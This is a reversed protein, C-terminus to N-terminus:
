TLFPCLLHIVTPYFGEPYQDCDNHEACPYRLGLGIRALTVVPFFVFPIVLLIDPIMTLIDPVTLFIDAVGLVVAPVPIMHFVNGIALFITAIPIFVFSVMGFVAPIGMVPRIPSLGAGMGVIFVGM